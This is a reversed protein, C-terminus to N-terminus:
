ARMWRRHWKRHYTVTGSSSSSSSHEPAGRAARAPAEVCRARSPVASRPDSLGPYSGEFGKKRIKQLEMPELGTLIHASAGVDYDYGTQPQGNSSLAIDIVTLFESEPIPKIGKRLLLAEIKPNEYLYSVESIMDLGISVALLGLSRRYGKTM